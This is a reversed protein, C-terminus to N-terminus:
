TTPVYPLFSIGISTGLLTDEFAKAPINILVTENEPFEKDGGGLTMAPIDFFIAGDENRLSFDMAVTTNNRIAAPVAASTFLAKAEIDVDFNGINMFVAGLNALVKEPSVNNKLTLTLSKFYTTLGTEDTETVRMRAIDSSTNFAVTQIPSLPTDANDKQTTAPSETDTGIFGFTMTAKSALELKIAIENCYNGLAYEYAPTGVAELDPYAGEFQYSQELFDDDEVPVNRLFRGFYVHITKTAGADATYTTSKKDLVIEHAAVSVIRAWGRNVGSSIDNAFRTATASGGIWIAQGATLGLTTFDLTTSALNGSANIALDGAAGQVGAVDIRAAAPPAAETVLAEVVPISTAGSGTDVVKLGNNGANSFGRAYILTGAPLAGGASVTYDDDTADAASVTNTDYIGFGTPGAFSAFLFGPLFLLAHDMIVDADFDVKSDLDTITGKKRQRDSSIPNRETTAITPGFSGISNPELKWWTPTAPLVGLSEEIAVALSVTNTSVRSM